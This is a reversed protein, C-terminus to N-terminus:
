PLPTSSHPPYPAITNARKCRVPEKFSQCSVRSLIGTLPKFRARRRAEITLHDELCDELYHSEGNEACPDLPDLLHDKM